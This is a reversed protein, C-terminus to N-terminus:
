TTTTAQITGLTPRYNPMLIGLGMFHLNNGYRDECMSYEKTCGTYVTVSDGVGWEAPLKKTVRLETNDATKITVSVGNRVLSGREWYAPYAPDDGNLTVTTGSVSAITRTEALSAKNFQCYDDGFTWSCVSTVVLGLMINKCLAKLGSVELTALKTIGDINSMGNTVYGRYVSYVESSLPNVDAIIVEFSPVARFSVLDEIYTCVSTDVVVGGADEDFSGTLEPVSVSLNPMSTYLNGGITVSEPWCIYRATIVGNVYFQIAKVVTNDTNTYISM